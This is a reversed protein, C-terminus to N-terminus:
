KWNRSNNIVEKAKFAEELDIGLKSCTNLFVFLVDAAELAVDRKTDDASKIGADKRAAKAYEGLEESLLMFKQALTEDAFGRELCTKDVYAQLEKLSLIDPLAAM